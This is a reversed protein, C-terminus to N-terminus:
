QHGLLSVLSASGIRPHIQARVVCQDIYLRWLRTTLMEMILYCKDLFYSYFYYISNTISIFFQWSTLFLYIYIMIKQDWLGHFSKNANWINCNLYSFYRPIRKTIILMSYGKKIKIRPVFMNINTECLRRRAIGIPCQLYLPLFPLKFLRSHPVPTYQVYSWDVCHACHLVLRLRLRM